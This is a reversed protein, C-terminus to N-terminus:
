WEVVEIMVGTGEGEKGIREVRYRMQKVEVLGDMKEVVGREKERMGKIGWGSERRM